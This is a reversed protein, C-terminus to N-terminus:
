PRWERIGAARCRSACGTGYVGHALTVHTHAGTRWASAMICRTGITEAGHEPTLYHTETHSMTPAAM